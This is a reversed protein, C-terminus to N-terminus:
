MKETTKLVSAGHVDVTENNKPDLGVQGLSGSVGVTFRWTTSTLHNM